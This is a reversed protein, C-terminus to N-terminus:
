SSFTGSISNQSSLELFLREATTSTLTTRKGFFLGCEDIFYETNDNLVSCSCQDVHVNDIARELCKAKYLSHAM